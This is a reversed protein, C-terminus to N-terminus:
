RGANQIAKRGAATDLVAGAQEWSKGSEQWNSELHEAKGYCMQALCELVTALGYRDVLQELDAGDGYDPNLTKAM